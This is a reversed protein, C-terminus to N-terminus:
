FHGGGTPAGILARRGDIAAEHAQMRERSRIRERVEALRAAAQELTINRQVALRVPEGELNMGAIAMKTGSELM